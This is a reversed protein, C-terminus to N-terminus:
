ECYLAAKRILEPNHYFSGIAVNCTHCLLGRVKGTTHCHDISLSRVNGNNHIVTEVKECIACVGNQKNFLEIYQEKTIGYNKEIAKWKLYEKNNNFWEKEKTKYKGRHRAKSEKSCQICINSNTYRPCPSGDGFTHENICIYEPNYMLINLNKAEERTTM